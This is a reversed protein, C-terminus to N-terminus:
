EADAPPLDLLRHAIEGTARVLADAIGVEAASHGAD